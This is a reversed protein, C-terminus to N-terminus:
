SRRSVTRWHPWERAMVAWLAIGLVLSVLGPGWDGRAVLAAGRVVYGVASLTFVVM